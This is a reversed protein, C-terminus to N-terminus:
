SRLNAPLSTYSYISDSVCKWRVRSFGAVLPLLRPSLPWWNWSEEFTEEVFAKVYDLCTPTEHDIIHLDTPSLWRCRTAFTRLEQQSLRDCIVDEHISELVKEISNKYNRSVFAILSDKFDQYAQSQLIFNKLATFDEGPEDGGVDEGSEEGSDAAGTGEENELDSAESADFNSGEDQVGVQTGYTVFSRSIKDATTDHPLGELFILRGTRENRAHVDAQSIIRGAIEAARSRIVRGAIKAEKKDSERKLSLGLVELSQQLVDQFESYSIMQDTFAVSKVLEMEDSLFLLEVLKPFWPSPITALSSISSMSINAHSFISPLPSAVSETGVSINQVEYTRVAASHRQGLGEAKDGLTDPFTHSFEAGGPTAHHRTDSVQDAQHRIKGERSGPSGPQDKRVDSSINQRLLGGNSRLSRSSEIGPTVDQETKSDASMQETAVARQAGADDSQYEKSDRCITRLLSQVERMSGRAAPDCVLCFNKLLNWCDQYMRKEGNNLSGDNLLRDFWAIVGSALTLTKTQEDVEFFTGESSLRQELDALGSAGYAIWAVFEALVTGFAWVDSQIAVFNDNKSEPAFHPVYAPLKTRALRHRLEETSRVDLGGPDTNTAGIFSLSFDTLKLMKEGHGADEGPHKPMVLINEARFDNQILHVKKGRDEMHDHLHVLVDSLRAFMALRQIRSVATMARSTCHLTMYDYLNCNAPEMFILVADLLLEIGLIQVIHNHSHKQSRILNIVELEQATTKDFRMLKMALLVHTNNWHENTNQFHGPAVEVYFVKSSSGNGCQIKKTFPLHARALSIQNQNAQGGTWSTRIKLPCFAYQRDHFNDLVYQPTKPGFTRRLTDLTFPLNADLMSSDNERTCNDIFLDWAQAKHSAGSYLLIAMVKARVRVGVLFRKSSELAARMQRSRATASANLYEETGKTHEVYFSRVLEENAAVLNSAMNDPWFYGTSETSASEHKFRTGTEAFEETTTVTQYTCRGQEVLNSLMRLRDEFYNVSSCFCIEHYKAEFKSAFEEGLQQKIYALGFEPLCEDRFDEHRLEPKALSLAAVFRPWIEATPVTDLALIIALIM